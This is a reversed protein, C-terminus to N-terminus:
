PLQLNELIGLYNGSVFTRWQADIKNPLDFVENKYYDFWACTGGVPDSENQWYVVFTEIIDAPDLEREKLFLPFMEKALELDFKYKTGLLDKRVFIDDFMNGIYVYNQSELFEIIELRTGPFVEGAHVLETVIM